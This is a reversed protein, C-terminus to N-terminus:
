LQQLDKIVDMGQQPKLFKDGSKLIKYVRKKFHSIKNLSPATLPTNTRQEAERAYSSEETQLSNDRVTSDRSLSSWSPCHGTANHDITCLPLNSASPAREYLLM